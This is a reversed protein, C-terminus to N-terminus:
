NQNKGSKDELRLQAVRLCIYGAKTAKEDGDAEVFAKCWLEEDRNSAELEDSARKYLSFDNADYIETPRKLVTPSMTNKPKQDQRNDPQDADRLVYKKLWVIYGAAFIAPVILGYFGASGSGAVPDYASRGAFTAMAVVRFLTAGAVAVLVGLSHRLFSNVINPVKRRMALWVLGYALAAGPLLGAIFGFSLVPSNLVWGTARINSKSTGADKTSDLEPLQATAHAVLAIPANNQPAIAQKDAPPFAAFCVALITTAAISGQPPREWPATGYESFVIGGMGMNETYATATVNRGLEKNCDYEMQDKVSKYARGDPLKQITLYDYVYWAKVKNGEVRITSYDVYVGDAGDSSIVKVWEAMVNNSCITFLLAVILNMWRM